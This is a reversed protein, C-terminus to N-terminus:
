FNQIKQFILIESFISYFRCEPFFRDELFRNGFDCFLVGVISVVSNLFRNPVRNLRVGNTPINANNRVARTVPPWLLGFEEMM